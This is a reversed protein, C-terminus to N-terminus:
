PLAVKLGAIVSRSLLASFEQRSNGNNLVGMAFVSVHANLTSEAYGGIENGGDTLSRTFMVRWYGNSEMLNSQWVLHFYDRGLLRPALGLAQGAWQPSAAARAFYTTEQESTFGHGDHLYEANLSQGNEFTYAAGALAAARRDSVTQVSFPQALDVPSQLASTLSTWGIEGYVMLADNVTFQSHAGVFAPLQPAKVAVVGYAWENGRQDLKALWSDRWVDPTATGYGSRVIRALNVSSRMDPTWSLKLVDMGSLERMPDTRGNDFYFPSSPSRFQAAGWNLVERGAAINWGEAARARVQWQSVYGENRRQAGFENRLERVSAIPRATFRVTENELKLNMRMEAVDSHQALRAVQNNPNLISDTNLSMSSAYGYLTADWSSRWSSEVAFANCAGFALLMALMGANSGLANAARM